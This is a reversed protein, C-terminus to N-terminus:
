PGNSGPERPRREVLGQERAMKALREKLREFRKTLTAADVPQGTTSLVEAIEAWSLRQDVRLALLSHDEASLSERLKDLAQSQREVRVASQTQVEEAIRSAEGTTLRRGRRRWAEDRLNMAANWALRFAWTRLSADGRFGPLGKWLKEAFQSFAETADEEDRLVSRLYRLVQPGFGRIAETAAGHFDRAALLERVRPEVSMALM